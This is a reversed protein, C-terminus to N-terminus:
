PRTRGERVDAALEKVYAELGPADPHAVAGGPVFEIAEEAFGLVHNGPEFGGRAIGALAKLLRKDARLVVSGLVHDAGPARGELFTARYEDWDVGIVWAGEQAAARIAASGLPGAANFVVDAGRSVMERGLEQGLGLDSFSGAFEVIARCDPCAYEVGREFGAVLAEVAPVQMGAVVAVVGSESARGALAGALFGGEEMRYSASLLNPLPEPFSHGLVIFMTDPHDLAMPWLPAPDFWAVAVVVSYGEEIARLAGDVPNGDEPTRVVAFELGSEERARELTRYVPLSFRNREVDVGPEPVMAVRLPMLEPPRDKAGPLEPHPVGEPPADEVLRWPELGIAGLAQALHDALPEDTGFLDNFPTLASLLDPNIGALVDRLAAAREEPLDPRIAVIGHAMPRSEAIVVLKDVLEPADASAMEIAGSNVIAADVEGQLVLQLAEEAAEASYTPGVYIVECEQDVNLGQEILAARGLIGAWSNWSILAVPRGRLDQPEGVSGDGRVVLQGALISGAYLLPDLRIQMEDRLWVYDVTRLLVIDVAGAEVMAPWALPELVPVVEVPYGMAESLQGALEGALADVDSGDRGWVGIVLPEGELLPAEVPVIETPVLTATAVAAPIPTLRATRAKSIQRAVFLVGALLLM